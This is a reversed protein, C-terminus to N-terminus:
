GLADVKLFVCYRQKLLKESEVRMREFQAWCFSKLTQCTKTMNQLEVDVLLAVVCYQSGLM